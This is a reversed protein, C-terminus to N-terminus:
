RQRSPSKFDQGSLTADFQLIMTTNRISKNVQKDANFLPQYLRLYANYSKNRYIPNNQYNLLSYRQIYNNFENDEGRFGLTLNTSNKVVKWDLKGNLRISRASTNQHSNTRELDNITLLVRHCFCNVAM